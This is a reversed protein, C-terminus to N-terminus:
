IHRFYSVVFEQSGDSSTIKVSQVVDDPAGLGKQVKIKVDFIETGPLVNTFVVRVTRKNTGDTPILTEDGIEPETSFIYPSLPTQSGDSNVSYVDLNANNTNDFMTRTCAQETTTTTPVPATSLTTSPSPATSTTPVTPTPSAATTAYPTTTVSIHLYTFDSLLLKYM